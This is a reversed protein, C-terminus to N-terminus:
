VLRRDSAWRTLEHRNSLQLRRLVNPSRKSDVQALEQGPLVVQGIGGTPADEDERHEEQAEQEHGDADAAQEGVPIGLRDAVPQGLLYVYRGLCSGRRSCEQWSGGYSLPYLV